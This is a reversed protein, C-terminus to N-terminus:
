DLCAICITINNINNVSVESCGIIDTCGGIVAYKGPFCLSCLSLSSCIYCDYSCPLCQLAVSSGYFRIPCNSFCSSNSPYYYITPSPCCYDDYAKINIAIAGDGFTSNIFNNTIFNLSGNTILFNFNLYNDNIISFSRLGFLTGITNYPLHTDSGSSSFFSSYLSAQVQMPSNSIQANVYRVLLFSISHLTISNSVTTVNM